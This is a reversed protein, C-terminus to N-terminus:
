PKFTVTPERITVTPQLLSRNSLTGICCHTELTCYSGSYRVLPSGDEVSSAVVEGVVIEHDGCSIVSHLRCELTALVEKLIPVGSQGLQWDAFDLNHSDRRAFRTSLDAQGASLINIGFCGQCHLFPLVRSQRHICFLVLAPDLSVSTFSSITLGATTGDDQMVTAVAVGTPFRGCTKRFQDQSIM